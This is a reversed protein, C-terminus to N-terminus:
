DPPDDFPTTPAAPPPREFPVERISLLGHRRWGIRALWTHPAVVPSPTSPPEQGERWGDFWRASSLVDIGSPARAGRRHKKWNQLVYVLASRVEAPTRLARAHYRDAFVPGHRGAARNIARAARIELGRVGLWLARHDSAEAIAHIHDPLISFQIVRFDHKQAARMAGGLAAAYKWGRLWPLGRRARLTVHVPHRAAHPPRARHPVQRRGAVKPPRGAGPRAGGRGLVGRLHLQRVGESRPRRPRTSRKM